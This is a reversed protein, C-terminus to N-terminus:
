SGAPRSTQATGAVVVGFGPAGPLSGPTPALQSGRDHGDDSVSLLGPMLYFRRRLTSSAHKKEFASRSRGSHAQRGPFHRFNKCFKPSEPGATETVRAVAQSDAAQFAQRSLQMAVPLLRAPRSRLSPAITSRHALINFRGFPGFRPRGRCGDAGTGLRSPRRRRSVPAEERDAIMVSALSRSQGSALGARHRVVGRDRGGAPM